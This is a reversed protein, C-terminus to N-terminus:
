PPARLGAIRRPLAPRSHLQSQGQPQNSGILRGAQLVVVRDASTAVESADPTVLIVSLAQDRSLRRLTAMIRAHASAEVARPPEDAIVLTPAACFTLAVAMMQRMMGSFDHPYRDWWTDPATLGLESVWQLASDTAQPAPCGTARQVQEVLQRGIPQLPDLMLVPDQFLVGIRHGAERMQRASLRDIRQGDLLIQGRAIRGPPELRGSVAAVIVSKGAGSDGALGLVEGRAVTLSVGDVPRAVGQPSPFEVVLDTIDLRTMPM